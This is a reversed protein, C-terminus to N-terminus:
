PNCLPVRAWRSLRIHLPRTGPNSHHGPVVGTTHLSDVRNCRNRLVTERRRISYGPISRSRHFRQCLLGWLCGNPFRRVRSMVIDLPFGKCRWMCRLNRVIRRLPWKDPHRCRNHARTHRSFSHFRDWPNRKRCKDRLCPTDRPVPRTCGEEMRICDSGPALICRIRTHPIHRHCIDWMNCLCSPDIKRRPRHILSRCRTSRMGPFGRNCRCLIRSNNRRLSRCNGLPLFM